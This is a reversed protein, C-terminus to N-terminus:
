HSSLLEAGIIRLLLSCSTLVEGFWLCGRIIVGLVDLGQDRMTTAESSIQTTEGAPLFASFLSFDHEELM